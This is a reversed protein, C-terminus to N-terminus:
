WCCSRGRESSQVSSAKGTYWAVMPGSPANSSSTTAGAAEPIIIAGATVACSSPEEGGTSGSAM